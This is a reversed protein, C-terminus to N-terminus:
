IFYALFLSFHKFTIEFEVKVLVPASLIHRFHNKSLKQGSHIAISLNFWFSSFIPLFYIPIADSQHKM